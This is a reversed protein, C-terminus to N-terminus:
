LCPSFVYDTAFQGIGPDVIVLMQNGATTLIGGLIQPPIPDM